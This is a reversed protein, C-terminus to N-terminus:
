LKPAEPLPQWHTVNDLMGDTSEAYYGDKENEAWIAGVMMSGTFGFCLVEIEEEPLREKVSIWRSERDRQIEQQAFDQM